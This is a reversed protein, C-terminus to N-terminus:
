EYYFGSEMTSVINDLEPKTCAIELEVDTCLMYGPISSPTVDRCLPRGLHENDDDVVSYFTSYLVPPFLFSGSGGNKGMTTLQPMANSVADGISSIAGGINGTLLNIAASKGASIASGVAGVYDVTMQALQIQVGVQAQTTILTQKDTMINLTGMGSVPDIFCQAYLTESVGMIDPDLAFQGFCPWSLLYRSFPAGNLYAGRARQPHKPITFSASALRSDGGFRTAPTNLTWWGYPIQGVASGTSVSPVPLWTCSAVYQFPNFLVKTLEAGIEEIGTYAWDTTGMLVNCFARFQSNNFVYYSVCGIAGIDSNIIGVIYVGEAFNSKFPNDGGIDESYTLITSPSNKTPYLTDVITGDSAASSRLVYQKQSGIYDRYSALVDVSLSARWLGSSYTWDKIFYYRSFEPIYAYNYATPKAPVVLAIEPATFSTPEILNCKYTTTAEAPIKTSNPKKSFTYFNVDIAM